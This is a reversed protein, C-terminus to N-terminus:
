VGVKSSGRRASSFERHFADMQQRPSPEARQSGRTDVLLGHSCGNSSVLLLPVVGVLYAAIATELLLRVNEFRLPSTNPLIGGCRRGNERHQQRQHLIGGEEIM